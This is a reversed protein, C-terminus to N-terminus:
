EPPLLGPDPTRDIQGDLEWEVVDWADGRHSWRLGGKGSAPYAEKSRLGNRFRVWVKVDRGQLEVPLRGNAAMMPM